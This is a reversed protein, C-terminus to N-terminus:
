PLAAGGAATAKHPDLTSPFGFKILLKSYFSEASFDLQSDLVSNRVAKMCRQRPGALRARGRKPREAPCLRWWSLGQGVRHSM